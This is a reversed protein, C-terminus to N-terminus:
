RIRAQFRLFGSQGPPLTGGVEWRLIVSGAENPQTTFVADRDARASGPVYELRGTLSDSVVVNTMPQGGTNTYRLTFTVVEGVQTCCEKDVAKCLVLPGGPPCPPLCVGVVEVEKIRATAVLTEQLQEIVALGVPAEIASPRRPVNLMEPVEVQRFEQGRRRRELLEQAVLIETGAPRCVGTYGVPVVETRLVAFRPACLCVRNSIALHRGKCDSYEAVTDAPDLGHLRGDPGIGAPVGGDGGDHLCEEVLPRPGLKPDFLQWCAAPLCPPATPPAQAKDGPFLITGPVSCRAPEEPDVGADGLRVILVLRGLTRALAELDTGPRYEMEVPRDPPTAVPQAQDPHELYYVKTLYSGSLVRTLDDASFVVSVPFNAANETPPLALSGRVELTPYLSLGPYQPLDTLRVRYIYGPRLGVTVPTEFGLGGPIGQYFITRFGTPGSFRVFLLPGPVKPGPPLVPPPSGRAASPATLALGILFVRPLNM